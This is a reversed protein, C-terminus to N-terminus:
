AKDKSELLRDLKENIIEMMISQEAIHDVSLEFLQITRRMLLYEEDSMNNVDSDFSQTLSKKWNGFVERIKSAMETMKM